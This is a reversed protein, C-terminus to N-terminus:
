AFLTASTLPNFNIASLMTVLRILPLGILATFDDGEFRTILAIGLGEANISGACQFPAEKRLYNEIEALSLKRFHVVYTEYAIQEQKHKTDYLCLGNFFTVSRGSVLTLQKVAEEYTLPKTLITDDILGVQDCGIILASPYNDAKAKAKECALRTVLAEVKEDPLPTEDIHPSISIFPIHLRALLARRAPSSSSLVLLRTDM